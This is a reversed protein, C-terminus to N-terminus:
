QHAPGGLAVGYVREANRWAIDAVAEPPLQGLLRRFGKVTRPYDQWPGERHADTAFLLRNTHAVLVRRWEPRLRGQGDLLGTGLKAQHGADAQLGPTDELRKSLTMYVNPHRSLILEVQEDSARGLHPIIFPRERHAAYLRDFKPWDRDWDYAEWHTMVPAPLGQLRALLDRTGPGDADVYREGTTTQEGMLKDAHAYMIEGVFAYRHRRVGAVTASIYAEDLDDRLLFYKPSGLVILAPFAERLKLMEPENEGLRHRSRAFLAIRGVGAASVRQMAEEWEADEDLQAMADFLPGQYLDLAPRSASRGLRPLLMTAVGALALLAIAIIILLRLRKM